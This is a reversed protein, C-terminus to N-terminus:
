KRPRACGPLCAAMRPMDWLIPWRRPRCEIVLERTVRVRARGPEFVTMRYAQRAPSREAIMAYIIRAEVERPLSYITVM